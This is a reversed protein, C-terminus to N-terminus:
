LIKKRKLKTLLEKKTYVIRKDNVVRSLKIKNLKCLKKIDKMIMDTYKSNNHIGGYYTEYIQFAYNQEWYSLRNKFHRLEELNGSNKLKEFLVFRDPFRNDGSNKTRIFINNIETLLGDYEKEYAEAKEIKDSIIGGIDQSLNSFKISYLDKIVSEKSNSKSISM